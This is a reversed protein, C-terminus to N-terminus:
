GGWFPTTKFGKGLSFCYLTGVNKYYVLVKLPAPGIEVFNCVFLFGLLARFFILRRHKKQARSENPLWRKKETWGFGISAKVSSCPTFYM